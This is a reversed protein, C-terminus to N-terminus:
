LFNVYDHRGADYASARVNELERTTNAFDRIIAAARHIYILIPPQTHTHRSSNIQWKYM